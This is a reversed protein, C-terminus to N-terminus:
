EINDNNYLDDDGRKFVKYVYSYSQEELGGSAIAKEINKEAREIAVALKGDACMNKM